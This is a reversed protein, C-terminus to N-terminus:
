QRLHQLFAHGEEIELNTDTALSLTAISAEVSKNNPKSPVVSPLGLTSQMNQVAYGYSPSAKFAALGADDAKFGNAVAISELNADVVSTATAKAADFKAQAENFKTTSADIVSQLSAILAVRAFTLKMPAPAKQGNAPQPATSTEGVIAYTYRLGNTNWLAVRRRAEAMTTSPSFEYTGNINGTRNDTETYRIARPLSSIPAAASWTGDGGTTNWTESM